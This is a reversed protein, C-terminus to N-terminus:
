GRSSKERKVEKVPKPYPVIDISEVEGEMGIMMFDVQEQARSRSHFMKVRDSMGDCVYDEEGDLFTVFIAFRRPM